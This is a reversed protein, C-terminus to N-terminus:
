HHIIITVIKYHNKCLTLQRRQQQQCIIIGKIICILTMQYFLCSGDRFVDWLKHDDVDLTSFVNECYTSDIIGSM